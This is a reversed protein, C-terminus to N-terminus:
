VHPILYKSAQVLSQIWELLPNHLFKRISKNNGMDNQRNGKM